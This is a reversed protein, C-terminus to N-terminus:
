YNNGMKKPVSMGPVASQAPKKGAQPDSPLGQCPDMSMGKKRADAICAEKSKYSLGGKPM